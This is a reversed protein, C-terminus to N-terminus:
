AGAVEVSAMAEHVLEALIAGAIPKLLHRDIQAKALRQSDPPYGSVAIIKCHVIGPIRRLSRALTYGDM